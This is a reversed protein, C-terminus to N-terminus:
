KLGELLAVAASGLGMVVLESEAAQEVRQVTHRRRLPTQQEHRGVVDVLQILRQNSRAPDVHSHHKLQGGAGLDSTQKLV